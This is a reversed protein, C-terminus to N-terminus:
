RTGGQSHLAILRRLLAGARQRRVSAIARDFNARLAATLARPAPVARRVGASALVAGPQMALTQTTTVIELPPTETFVGAEDGNFDYYLTQKDDFVACVLGYGPAVYSENAQTEVFGLVTDTRQITQALETAKAPLSSALRCSSPVAVVGDDRDTEAYLAPVTGYWSSIQFAQAPTGTTDASGYEDITILPAGSAQPEPPSYTLTIISGNAEITFVGSGDANEQATGVGTIGLGSYSPPYTTKETYSGDANTTRVVTISSGNADGALAEDVTSAPGNSWAAGPTEPLEDLITAPAPLTSVTDGSEDAFQSGYGLMHSSSGLSVPAEYTDTSSTTTELGSSQADTEATHLGYLGSQGAFTQGSKVTVVQSVDVLTTVVPEPSPTGPAVVEPFSRYVTQLTGAYSFTNGGALPYTAPTATPAPTATAAATPTASPVATAGSSTSGVWGEAGVPTASPPSSGGGGSCATLLGSSSIVAFVVARYRM